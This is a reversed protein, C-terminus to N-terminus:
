GLRLRTRVAVGEANKGIALDSGDCTAGLQDPM